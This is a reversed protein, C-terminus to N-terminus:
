RCPAPRGGALRARARPCARRRSRRNRIRPEPRRVMRDVPACMPIGTPGYHAAERAHLHMDLIPPRSQASASPAFALSTILAVWRIANKQEPRMFLLVLVGLLPAFTVVTLTSFLYQM